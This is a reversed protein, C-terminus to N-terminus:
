RRMMQGYFFTSLEWQNLDSNPACRFYPRNAMLFSSAGGIELVFKQRSVSVM